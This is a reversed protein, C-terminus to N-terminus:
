PPPCSNSENWGPSSPEAVDLVVDAGEDLRGPSIPVAPPVASLRRDGVEDVSFFPETMDCAWHTALVRKESVYIMRHVDDSERDM